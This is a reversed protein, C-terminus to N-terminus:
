FRGSGKKDGGAKAGDGARHYVKLRQDMVMAAELDGKMHAGMYEQLHPVLGPLFAHFAEEVTM